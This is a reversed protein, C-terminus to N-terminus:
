PTWYGSVRIWQTGSDSHVNGYLKYLQRAYARSEYGIQTSGSYHSFRRLYGVKNDYNDRVRVALVSNGEEFYPNSQDERKMSVYANQENDDKSIPGCYHSDGKQFDFRWHATYAMVPSASTMLTAACLIGALIKSINKRM